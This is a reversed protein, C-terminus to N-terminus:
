PNERAHKQVFLLVAIRFNNRFKRTLQLAARIIEEAHKLRGQALFIEALVQLYNVVYVSEIGSLRISEEIVQRAAIEAEVLRKQNLLNM